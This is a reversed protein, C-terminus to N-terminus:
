RNAGLATEALWLQDALAGIDEPCAGVRMATVSLPGIFRTGGQFVLGDPRRLCFFVATEDSGTETVELAGDLFPLTGQSGIQEAAGAYIRTANETSTPELRRRADVFNFYLPAGEAGSGAEAIFFGGSVENLLVFEGTLEWGGPAAVLVERGGAMEFVAGGAPGKRVSQGELVIDYGVPEIPGLLAARQEAPTPGAPAEPAAPAGSRLFDTTTFVYILVGTGLAAGLLTIWLASRM